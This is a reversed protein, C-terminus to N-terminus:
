VSEKEKNRRRRAVGRGSRREREVALPPDNTERTEEKRKRQKLQETQELSEGQACIEVLSLRSLAHWPATSSSSTMSTQHEREDASESVGLRRREENSPERAGEGQSKSKPRQTPVETSTSSGTASAHPSLFRSAHLVRPTKSHMAGSSEQSRRSSM